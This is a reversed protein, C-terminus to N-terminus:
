FFFLFRAYNRTALFLLLKIVMVGGILASKCGLSGTIIHVQNKLRTAIYL